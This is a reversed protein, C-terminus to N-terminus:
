IEPPLVLREPLLWNICVGSISLTSIPKFGM